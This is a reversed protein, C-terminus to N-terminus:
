HIAQISAAKFERYVTMLSVNLIEAIEKNSFDKSRLNHMYQHQTSKGWNDCVPLNVKVGKYTACLAVLSDDAIVGRLMHKDKLNTPFYVSVRKEQTGAFAAIKMTENVGIVEAFGNLTNPLRDGGVPKSKYQHRPRQTARILNNKIEQNNISM